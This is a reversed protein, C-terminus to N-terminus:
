DKQTEISVITSIEDVGVTYFDKAGAPIWKAPFQWGHNDFWSRDYGPTDTVWVWYGREDRVWASRCPTTYNAEWARKYDTFWEGPVPQSRFDPCIASFLRYRYVYHWKGLATLHHTHYAKDPCGTCKRSLLRQMWKSRTRYAM